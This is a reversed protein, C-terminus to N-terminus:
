LGRVRTGPKGQWASLLWLGAFTLAGNLLLLELGIEWRGFLVRQNADVAWCLAPAAL